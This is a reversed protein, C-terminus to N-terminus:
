WTYSYTIIGTKLPVIQLRLITIISYINYSKMAIQQNHSSYINM